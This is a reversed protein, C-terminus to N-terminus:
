IRSNTASGDKIKQKLSQLMKCKNLYSFGKGWRGAGDLFNKADGNKEGMKQHQKWVDFEEFNVTDFFQIVKITSYLQFGVTTESIQLVWLFCIMIQKKFMRQCRFKLSHKFFSESIIVLGVEHDNMFGKDLHIRVTTDFWCYRKFVFILEMVKQDM